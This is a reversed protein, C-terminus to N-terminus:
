AQSHEYIDRVNEGEQPPYFISKTRETVPLKTVAIFARFDEESAFSVILQKWATRDENVFQFEGFEEFERNPDNEGITVIHVGLEEVDIGLQEVAVEQILSTDLNINKKATTNALIAAEHFKATGSNIDTRKLIVPRTGDTEVVIPEVAEGFAEKLKQSRANGTIIKGDSSVTVSEIVGVKEISEGLLKMGEETHQNFNHEDETFSQLTIKKSM